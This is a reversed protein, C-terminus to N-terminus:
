IVKNFTNKETCLMDTKITPSVIVPISQSPVIAAHNLMLM